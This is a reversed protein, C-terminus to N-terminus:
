AVGSSRRAAVPVPAPVLRDLLALTRPDRSRVQLTLTAPRAVCLEAGARDFLRDFADALAGLTPFRIERNEM